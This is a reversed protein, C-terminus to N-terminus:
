AAVEEPIETKEIVLERIRKALPGKLMQYLPVQSIEVGAVELPCKGRLRVEADQTFPTFNDVVSFAQVQIRATQISEFSCMSKYHQNFIRIVEEASNNTRPIIKSGIANVLKPFDRELSEFIKLLVASVKVYEEKKAMFLHYRRRCTRKDKCNFINEFEIVFQKLESIEEEFNAGFFEKLKDRMKKIQHFICLHHIADKFVKAIAASLAPDNDSVIVKPYYGKFRLGLLFLEAAKEDKTESVITHLITLSDHHVAFYVYCFKGKLAKGRFHKPIKVYKEDVCIVLQAPPFLVVMTLVMAQGFAAFLRYIEGKSAGVFVAIRGFSGRLLTYLLTVVAMNELIFHVVEKSQTFTKVMCASNLCYGKIKTVTRRFFGFRIEEEIKTKQWTQQSGCDPCTIKEEQSGEQEEPRKGQEALDRGLFFEQILDVELRSNLGNVTDMEKERKPLKDRVSCLRFRIGEPLLNHQELIKQMQSALKIAQTLLWSCDWSIQGKKLQKKLKKRARYFGSYRAWNEISSLSIDKENKIHGQRILEERVQQANLFINESWIQSIVQCLSGTLVWRWDLYPAVVGLISGGAQRWRQARNDVDQRNNYGFARATEELTIIKGGWPGQCLNLWVMFVDLDAKKDSEIAFYVPAKLYVFYRKGKTRVELFKNQFRLQGRARIEECVM